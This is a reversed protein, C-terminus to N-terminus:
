AKPAQYKWNRHKGEAILALAQDIRRDRTPQTKAEVIWEIYERRYGPPLADFRERLAQRDLAADFADPMAPMPRPAARPRAKAPASALRDIAAELKARLAADDPMADLSSIQRFRGTGAGAADEGPAEDHHFFISVHKKFAAMGALNRGDLTFHPMGWKITEVCQPVVEHVVARFRELIPQAFAGARAIHDDIRPDTTPM